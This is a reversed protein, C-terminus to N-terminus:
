RQQWVTHLGLSSQIVVDLEASTSLLHWLQEWNFSCVRPCGQVTFGYIHLIICYFFFEYGNSFILPQECVYNGLGSINLKLKLM